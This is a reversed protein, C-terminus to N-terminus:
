LGTLETISTDLMDRLEDPALLTNEEAIYAMSVVTPTDTWVGAHHAHVVKSPADPHFKLVDERSINPKPAAGGGCGALLGAAAVTGSLKIFERRTLKKM